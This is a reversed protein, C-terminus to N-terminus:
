KPCWLKAKGIAKRVDQIHIIKFLYYTKDMFKSKCYKPFQRGVLHSGLPSVSSLPRPGLTSSCLCGYLRWNFFNWLYKKGRSYFNIIPLFRFAVAVKDFFLIKCLHEKQSDTLIKFFVKRITCSQCSSRITNRWTPQALM